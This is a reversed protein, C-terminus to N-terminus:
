FWNYQNGTLIYKGSTFFKHIQTAYTEAITEISDGRQGSKFAPDLDLGFPKTVSAPAFGGVNLSGFFPSLAVYVTTAMGKILIPLQNRFSNAQGWVPNLVMGLTTEIPSLISKVNIDMGLTDLPQIIPNFVGIDSIYGFLAEVWDDAKVEDGQSAQEMMTQIENKLKLKSLAM